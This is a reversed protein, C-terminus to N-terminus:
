YGILICDVLIDQTTPSDIEISISNALKNNWRVHREFSNSVPNVAYTTAGYNHTWTVATQGAPITLTVANKKATLHEDIQVDSKFETFGTDRTMTMVDYINNGDDRAIKFVNGAPMYRLRFGFDSTGDFESLFLEAPTADNNVVGRVELSGSDIRQKGTFTNDFGLRAYKDKLMSGAETIDNQSQIAGDVKFTNSEYRVPRWQRIDYLNPTEGTSGDKITVGGTDNMPIFLKVIPVSGTPISPLSGDTAGKAYQITGENVPDPNGSTDVPGRVYYIDYRNYQQYAAPVTASYSTTYEFRRGSSTYVVGPDLKVTSDPGTAGGQRPQLGSVVGYSGIDANSAPADFDYPRKGQLMEANLNNVQANSTVAISNATVKGSFTADGSTGNVYAKVTSSNINGSGDGDLHITANGGGRIVLDGNNTGASTSGLYMTGNVTFGTGVSQNNGTGVYAPLNATTYIENNNVYVKGVGTTTLYIHGGSTDNQVSLSTTGSSGYGIWGSRTTLAQSDAYFGMFVHDASSGAKINFTGGGANVTLTGNITGNQDNRLFVASDLGDLKDADAAKATIGLYKSALSTGGESITGSVTANGTVTLAGQTTIEGTHVGAWGVTSDWFEYYQAATRGPTRVAVYNPQQSFSTSELPQYNAPNFNGGHYITAGKYTFTSAGVKMLSTVTQNAPDGIDTGSTQQVEFDTANGVAIVPGQGSKKYIGMRPAATTDIGFYKNDAQVNLSGTLTGGSLQLYRTDHNHTTDSKGALATDLGTVDSMAHTHASPTFTSPKDTIDAWLHTHASPTYTAPTNKLRAWDIKANVDVVETSGVFYQPATVKGNSTFATGQVLVGGTFDGAYNIVLQAGSNKVMARSGGTDGRSTQDGNGLIFDFGKATLSSGGVSVGGNVTLGGTITGGAVDLKTTPTFNGAHWVANSGVNMSTATLAAPYTVNKDRDWSFIDRQGAPYGGWIEMGNLAIPYTGYTADTSWTPTFVIRVYGIQAYNRSFAITSFPLYMHGPWASIKNTASTHATWTTVAPDYSKKEITVQTSHSQSSWYMYLANLFVYNGDNEINIRFQQCGNPINIATNNRGSVFDKITNTAVSVTNWTSGDDTYEFTIKTPDYFWTKNTFQQNFVAMETVTPNGLNSRPTGNWQQYISDANMNGNVNVTNNVTLSGSMTGNSGTTIADTIGYGSVTTPKSTLSAFTHTHSDYASKFASVDVGDVNGSVTINGTVDLGAKANLQVASDNHTRYFSFVDLDGASYHSNRITVYDADGDDSAQLVLRSANSGYQEAFIKMPDSNTNFMIAPTKVTTTTYTVVNGMTIDGTITSGALKAYVTDHDHDTRSVTTATGTGGFNVALSRNASLDGGGTLGSGASITTTKLAGDTIGYGSLTTPKGSTIKTWDLSPIDAAVLNTNVWKTGNYRLFNGSAVTTITTDTLDNVTHTHDSKAVTTAVGTGAFNVAITRNATLDGGGTLGSGATITVTNNAKGNWNTKDADTVFRHTSDETIMTAAHTAPHTYVITEASDILINGNTTSAGAKTAGTSIGSLKTKEATTYDETSLGKGTVKDVKSDLAAQLGDVDGIVHSHSDDAITATITVNGSGDVSASGSVDGSLTLTIPAAWKSATSANGTISSDTYALQKPTGWTTAGQAAQYHVIMMQSKDFALANVSGGSTDTYTNMVLLDQYDTGATGTLGEKSTFYARTYGVPTDAPKVDRKDIKKLTTHDHSDDVVTVALTVNASGDFSVSGTADTSLTITRATAWKSASVANAGTDLKGALSTSLGIIDSQAHTHASPTFTTPKDTIDAWLHTHGTNSKGDLSTQLNTVESIPHTHASPAYTAPTNKLSSWDIKADTGIVTTAGVKYATAQATGTFVANGASDLSMRVTDGVGQIEFAASASAGSGGIRLRPKDNLWNLAINDTQSNPNDVYVYSSGSFRYSGTITSGSLKAYVTDHNHTSTAADTIGYGSLTTPKSTLEAFTHTHGVLSADTIGYGSVTTPKSTISAFTHTHSTDSKTALKTDMESETYYRDDHIHGTYSVETGDSKRFTAAKMEGTTTMNKNIDWSYPQWSEWGSGQEGPRPTIWQIETLWWNASQATAGTFNFTIRIQNDDLPSSMKAYRWYSGLCATEALRVSTTTWNDKTTEVMLTGSPTNYSGCVYMWIAEGWAQIDYTIRFNRHTYDINAGQSTGIGDTLNDMSVGTWAVWSTGNYYEIATPKRFRLEDGFIPLPTFGTTGFAGLSGYTPTYMPAADTIGYGSLTTPISTLSSFAHTHTSLSADTIGYGALTTPKGTTIKAWDLSPIDSAALTTASTVLGKANVTVKTFTGVNSNVTALTLATTGNASGDFSFSGTADGTWSLTRATALKTATAANGDANGTISAPLKANADLYLLKNATATTATDTIGYGSITTPKSTLSAFTHTHSTDSKGSLKTDMETETYYRDDHVHGTLSADTIGYGAVTTPKATLDAFAHTHGTDSKGDLATQLGTVDGIAHSHVSAAKGDLATQLNTVESIPHTHASPAYTAPANKIKNWDMKADTEIVTTAGVKYATAQMTGVAETANAYLKLNTMNAANNGTIYLDQTSQIYNMGTWNKVYVSGNTNTLALTSSNSGTISVTLTGTLTGGTLTLYKASLNTGNEQLNGTANITAGTVTYGAASLNGVVTLPANIKAATGRFTALERTDSTRVLEVGQYGSIRIGDITATDVGTAQQRIFHGTDKFNIQNTTSMTLNGTMSRTGNLLLVDTMAASSLNTLLSGDGSFKTATIQGSTNDLTIKSGLTISGVPLTLGGGIRVSSNIDRYSTM